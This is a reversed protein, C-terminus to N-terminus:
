LWEMDERKKIRIYERACQDCIAVQSVNFILHRQNGHRPCDKDKWHFLNKNDKNSKSNM